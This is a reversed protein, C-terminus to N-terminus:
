KEVISLKTIRANSEGSSLISYDGAESIEWTFETATKGKVSNATGNVTIASTNTDGTSLFTVKVTAAGSLTFNLAGDGNLQLASIKKHDKSTYWYAKGDKAPTLAGLITTSAPIMYLGNKTPGATDTLGETIDAFVLTAVDMSVNLKTSPAATIEVTVTAETPAAAAKKLTFEFPDVAANDTFRLTNEDVITGTLTETKGEITETLIINKGEVTYTFANGTVEGYAVTRKGGGANALEEVATDTDPMYVLGSTSDNIYVYKFNQLTVKMGSFESVKEELVWYTNEFETTTGTEGGTSGGTEGGTTGGTSGGTEGGTTGGTSGGTEGGTEGSGTAAAKVTVKFKDTKGGASATITAEGAKVGTVVGDKVTAVTNDSSTWTVTKNTADAPLVEAKLTITKGVTVETVTSTIKVETVAVDGDDDDDNKCGIFNTMALLAALAAAIRLMKKM